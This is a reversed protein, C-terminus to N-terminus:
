QVGQDQHEHQYLMPQFTHVAQDHVQALEGAPEDDMKKEIEEYHDQKDAFVPIVVVLLEPQQM